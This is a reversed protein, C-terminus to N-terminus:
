IASVKSGKTDMGYNVISIVDVIIGPYNSKLTDGFSEYNEIIDMYIRYILNNIIESSRTKEEIGKTSLALFDALQSKSFINFSNVHAIIKMAAIWENNNKEIPTKQALVLANRCVESDKQIKLVDLCYILTNNKM